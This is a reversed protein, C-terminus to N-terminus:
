GGACHPIGPSYGDSAVTPTTLYWDYVWTGDELQDWTTFHRGYQWVNDVWDGHNTQCVAYLTTGNHVWRLVHNIHPESQVALGASDAGTM